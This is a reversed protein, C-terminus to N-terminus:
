NCKVTVPSEALEPEDPVLITKVVSKRKWNGSLYYLYSLILGVMWGLPVAWWIGIEGFRKSLVIAGPIRVLWLAFLTIFMPILTDGAGRLLGNITFMGSFLLYCSSVIILYQSGIRIVEPDQNFLGVLPHRTLIFTATLVVSVAASMTFTMRLGTRIRDPRGAGVNQGVFAALAQSFIMAPTMAIADIRGAVSYAAIVDTGFNNVIKLLAMMGLAVFTQQFGTPLGIRLSQIFIERDFALHKIGISILKHHRNLYIVATLFAGGQSILTAIAAGAVGWGFGIVFLLDLLINFVTAIIMFVMPTKSDGLGRLIAATGNYGFFVVLGGIIISIYTKTPGYIDPPIDLLQLVPNLFLFGIITFVISLSFMLLYLTGIARKVKEFDKAGFYQSIIITGGFAVGIILSILTLMIPFANGIAALAEKGVVRGVIISDVVNYLQQFVSGILLPIAFSFIRKGPSGTTLDVM